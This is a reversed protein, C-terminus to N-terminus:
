TADSPPRGRRVLKVVFPTLVLTAAIRFPQTLKTALYAAGWIGVAGPTSANHFGLQFALAFAMLVIGFIGFYAWIAIQGYEATLEQLRQRIPPKFPKSKPV